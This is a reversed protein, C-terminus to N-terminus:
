APWRPWRPCTPWTRPRMPSSTPRRPSPTPEARDVLRGAVRDHRLDQGGRQGGPVARGARPGTGADLPARGGYVLHEYIEDTLVWIGAELAWQGIAEIEARPYVAGTPNSPSVFLLVKTRETRAAELQRGIGSLREVRRQTIVVSVGGPWPSRSPTPPGTPPRSWCKTAPTVCCPSPTPWRRNERRQDGSSPLRSGDARTGGRDQRRDGRATRAPWRHAFLPPLPRCAAHWSPPRSSTSPPTPFDPEGAGFGIVHEGAAQLAKAKADVALTASPSVAAARASIRRSATGNKPSPTM